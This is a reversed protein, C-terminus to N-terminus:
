RAARRGEAPAVVSIRVRRDLALADLDGEQAASEREGLATLRIRGPPLGARLLVDRVAEAREISLQENYVADGRADAHGELEVDVDEMAALVGGLDLLRQEMADELTAQATRFFVQAELAQRLLQQQGALQARAVHAQQELRRESADLDTRLAVLQTRAQEWRQEFDARATHEEYFRSGLWTGFAAGLVMGAPGGLTGLAAGSGFGLVEQKAFGAAAPEAAWASGLMGAGVGFVVLQKIM